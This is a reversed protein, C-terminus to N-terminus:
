AQLPQNKVCKAPKDHKIPSNCILHFKIDSCMQFINKQNKKQFEWLIEMLNSRYEM